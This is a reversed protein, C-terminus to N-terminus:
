KVSLILCCFITIFFKGAFFPTITSRIRKWRKGEVITMLDNAVKGIVKQSADRGRTTFRSFQKVCIEKVIDPDNVILTPKTFMFYVGFMDGYERSWKGAGVGFANILEATHGMGLLSPPPGNVGRRAWYRWSNWIYLYTLASVLLMVYLWM